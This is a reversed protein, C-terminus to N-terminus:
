ANSSGDFHLALWVTAQTPDTFTVRHSAGAPILLHDGVALIMESGEVAIRAVGALVLVWEDWGQCYPEDIPTVQGNSVIREVRCGGRVLVETFVEGSTASPLDALLNVSCPGTVAFVEDM